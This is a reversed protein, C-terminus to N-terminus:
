SRGRTEASILRGEEVAWEDLSDLIDDLRPRDEGLSFDVGVEFRVGMVKKLYEAVKGLKGEEQEGETAGSFDSYSIFNRDEFKRMNM